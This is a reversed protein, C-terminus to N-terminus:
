NWRRRRPEVVIWTCGGLVPSSKSESSLRSSSSSLGNVRSSNFAFVTRPKLLLSLLLFCPFVFLIFLEFKFFAVIFLVFLAALFYIKLFYDFWNVVNKKKKFFFDFTLNFSFHEHVFFNFQIERQKSRLSFFFWEMAKKM